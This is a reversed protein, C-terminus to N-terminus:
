HKMAPALQHQTSNVAIFYHLSRRHCNTNHQRYHPIILADRPEVPFAIRINVQAQGPLLQRRDFAM